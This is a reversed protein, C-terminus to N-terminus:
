SLNFLIFWTDALGEYIAGFIIFLPFWNTLILIPKVYPRWDKVFHANM